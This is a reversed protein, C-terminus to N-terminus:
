FKWILRNKRESVLNRIEFNLTWSSQLDEVKLPIRYSWNHPGVTGPINIREESAPISYFQNSLAFFDQIPLICLLSNSSFMNSLIGRVSDPSLNEPVMGPQHVHGWFLNKDFDPEEWLGRLTSTDHCSTTCVSLRPYDSMEYYPSYPSDWNRAWREVRLCLIDLKNLVEPVCRPVAGLDEACVLMDTEKSLVTLLKLANEKWLVEQSNENEAILRRLTEQEGSPLTFLVPQEYWYWYPYYDDGSSSPVFVRNWYVKLLRDKFEQVEYLSTIAKESSFEEKFIYRDTTGPLYCFYKDIATDTFEGLFNWLQDKGFNPNKLYELSERCFGATQLTSWKLPVSPEFRGLMGTVEKQPVEWIRFFGLVHDIRYAHYFKAAQRLRKRWWSFDDQELVEWRYTPFGWNQGSYSYMDPPAGARDALSFYGRHYWVDASDENILIPIDGKLRVNIKSLESVAMSFQAEAEWQMWAQFLTEKKYKKWIVDIDEAEPERFEEWDKWSSEHNLAKLVAYAAYPRVWENVLMWQALPKSSSIMSYRIDFIKRLMERKWSAVKYYDMRAEKEFSEQAKLIEDEFSKSGDLAQLNIFVPNLAFASRASYPSSEFGTDNVPLIQIVNLDCNRVWQAFPILDLFDGTGISNKSRLSFLPIAVGTQFFSLDGYQM